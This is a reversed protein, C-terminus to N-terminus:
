CWYWFSIFKGGNIMLKWLPWVVETRSKWSFFNLFTTDYIVWEYSNIGQKGAQLHFKFGKIHAFPQSIHTYKKELHISLLYLSLVTPAKDLSRGKDQHLLFYKKKKRSSSEVKDLRHRPSVNSWKQTPFRSQIHPERHLTALCKCEGNKGEEMTDLTSPM